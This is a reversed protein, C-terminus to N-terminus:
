ALEWFGKVWGAQKYVRRTKGAGCRQPDVKEIHQNVQQKILQIKNKNLQIKIKNKLKLHAFNHESSHHSKAETQQTPSV